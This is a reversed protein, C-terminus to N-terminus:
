IFFLRSPANIELCHQWIPDTKKHPCTLFVFLSDILDTAASQMAVRIQFCFCVTDLDLINM